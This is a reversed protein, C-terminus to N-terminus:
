NRGRPQTGLMGPAMYQIDAKAPGKLCDIPDKCAGKQGDAGTWTRLSWITNGCARSIYYHPCNMPTVPENPQWGDNLWNNVWQTGEELSCDVGADVQLSEMTVRGTRDVIPDNLLDLYTKFDTDSPVSTGAPRPDMWRREVRWANPGPVWVGERNVQWGEIRRILEKYDNFCKGGGYSQAIGPKGDPKEGPLAWEGIETGPWEHFTWKRGDEDVATWSMFWNRQGHPDIWHYLSMRDLPPVRAPEVIHVEGFNAFAKRALKTPWGWLRELSFDAPRGQVSEIIAQVNTYPNFMTPCLVAYRRGGGQGSQMVLPVHGKPCGKVLERDEPLLWEGWAWTRRVWDWVVKRAPITELITAGEIYQGVTETYGEVPTFGGLVVGGTKHVRFRLTELLPAPAEEDWTLVHCEGGEVSKPDQQWAKYTPFLAASSWPLVFLNESFGTAEKYSIKTTTGQSKVHRLEVPLYRFMARQIYRVSTLENQSFCRAETGPRNVLTEMALKAQLETKGSGNGGLAVIDNAPKEQKWGAPAVAQGLMGPVYTGALLARIVKLPPQEWGHHLPDRHQRQIALERERHWEHLWALGHQQALAALDDASPLAWTPEVSWEWAAIKVTDTM